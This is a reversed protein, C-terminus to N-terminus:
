EVSISDVSLNKDVKAQQNNINYSSLNPFLFSTVGRESLLLLVNNIGYLDKYYCWSQKSSEYNRRKNRALCQSNVWKKIRCLFFKNSLEFCCCCCCCFSLDGYDNQRPGAAFFYGGNKLARSSIVRLIIRLLSACHM